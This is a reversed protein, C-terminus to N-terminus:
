MKTHRHTPLKTKATWTDSIKGTTYQRKEKDFYPLNRLITDTGLCVGHLHKSFKVM